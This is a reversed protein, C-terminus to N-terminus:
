ISTIAGFNSVRILGAMQSLAFEMPVPNRFLLHSEIVNLNQHGVYSAVEPLHQGIIEMRDLHKRLEDRKGNPRIAGRFDALQEAM